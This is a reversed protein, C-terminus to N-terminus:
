LLRFLSSFWVGFQRRFASYRLAISIASKLNQVSMGTIQVRGASLAGLSAGFRKNPDSFPSVYKGEPTVDGNKNLM